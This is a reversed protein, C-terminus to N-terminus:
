TPVNSFLTSISIFPATLEILFKIPEKFEKCSANFPVILEVALLL